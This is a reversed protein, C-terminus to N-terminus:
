DFYGSRDTKTRYEAEGIRIRVPIYGVPATIYSRWGRQNFVARALEETTTAQDVKAEAEMRRGMVVRGLVRVFDSNGYGTYPITRPRWGRDRLFPTLRRRVGDEIRASFHTAAMLAGRFKRPEAPRPDGGGACPHPAPGRRVVPVPTGAHDVAAAAPHLLAHIQEEGRHPPAGRGPFM